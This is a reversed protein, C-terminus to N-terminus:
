KKEDGRGGHPKKALHGDNVDECIKFTKKRKPVGKPGKVRGLKNM